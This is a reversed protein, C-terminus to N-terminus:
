GQARAVSRSSILRINVLQVRRVFWLCMFHSAAEWPEFITLYQLKTYLLVCVDPPRLPFSPLLSAYYTIDRVPCLRHPIKVLTFVWNNLICMSKAALPIRCSSPPHLAGVRQVVRATQNM